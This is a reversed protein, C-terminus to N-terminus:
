VGKDSPFRLEGHVGLEDSWADPMRNGPLVGAVGLLLKLDADDPVGAEAVGHKVGHVETVGLWAPLPSPWGTLSSQIIDLASSIEKKVSSFPTEGTALWLRLQYLSLTPM